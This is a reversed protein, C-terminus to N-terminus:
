GEEIEQCESIDYVNRVGEGKLILDLDHSYYGNNYGHGAVMAPMADPPPLTKPADELFDTATKALPAALSSTAVVTMSTPTSTGFAVSMTMSFASRM